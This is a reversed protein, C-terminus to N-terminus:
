AIRRPSISVCLRLLEQPLDSTREPPEGPAVAGRGHGGGGASGLGMPTCIVAACVEKGSAKAGKKEEKDRAGLVKKEQTAGKREEKGVKSVAVKVEVVTPSKQGLLPLTPSM